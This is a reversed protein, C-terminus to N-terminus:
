TRRCWTSSRTASPAPRCRIPRPGPFQEHLGDLYGPLAADLAEHAASQQKADLGADLTIVETFGNGDAALMAQASAQARATAEAAARAAAPDAQALAPDTGPVRALVSFADTVSAVHEVDLKDRLTAVLEGAQARHTRVDVGTVVITVTTSSGRAEAVTDAVHQSDTDPVNTESSTLRSFLNQGGWGTLALSGTIGLVVAWILVFALPHRSVARGIRTFLQTEWHAAAM